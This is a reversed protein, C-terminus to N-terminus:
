IIQITVTGVWGEDRITQAGVSNTMREGYDDGKREDGKPLEVLDL